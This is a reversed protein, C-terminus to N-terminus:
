VQKLQKIPWEYAKKAMEATEKVWPSQHHWTFNKYGWKGYVDNGTWSIFIDFGKPRRDQHLCKRLIVDVRQLIQSLGQGWLMSVESGSNRPDDELAERLENDFTRKTAVRRGQMTVLALSSDGVVIAFSQELPPPPIRQLSPTFLGGLLRISSPFIPHKGLGEALLTFRHCLDFMKTGEYVQSAKHSFGLITIDRLFDVLVSLWGELSADQVLPGTATRDDQVRVGREEHWLEYLMTWRSYPNQKRLDLWEHNPICRLFLKNPDDTEKPERVFKAINSFAAPKTLGALADALRDPDNLALRFEHAREEADDFDIEADRVDVVPIESPMTMADALRLRPSFAFLQSAQTSIAVVSVSNTTCKKGQKCHKLYSEIILSSIQLPYPSDTDCCKQHNDRDKCHLTALKTQIEEVSTFLRNTSRALLGDPGNYNAACADFKDSTLKREKVWKRVREHELYPCDREATILVDAGLAKFGTAVDVFSAWAKNFSKTSVSNSGIGEALIPHSAGKTPSPIRVWVLTSAGMKHFKRAINLLDKRKTVSNLGDIGESSVWSCYPHKEPMLNKMYAEGDWAVEIILSTKETDPRKLAGNPPQHAAAAKRTRVKDPGIRMLELAKSWKDSNTFPKTLIDAAQLNTNIYAMKYHRRRFQEAIWGLNIRQTKDAHRFAPSKGSELIRITAQNDELVVPEIAHPVYAILGLDKSGTTPALAEIDVGGPNRIGALEKHMEAEAEAFRRYDMASRRYVCVLTECSVTYSMNQLEEWAVAEELKTWKGKSQIWIDRLPHTSLDVPEPISSVGTHVELRRGDPLSHHGVSKIKSIESDPLKSLDISKGKTLSADRQKTDGGANLLVSWLASSPLGL